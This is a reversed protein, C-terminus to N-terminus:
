LEPQISQRLRQTYTIIRELRTKQKETLTNRCYARFERQAKEIKAISRRLRFLEADLEYEETPSAAIPRFVEHPQKPIQINTLDVPIESPPAISVVTETEPEPIATEIETASSVMESLPATSVVTEAAISPPPTSVATEPVAVYDQIFSVIEPLNETIIDLSNSPLYTHTFGAVFRERESSDTFSILIRQRSIIRAKM